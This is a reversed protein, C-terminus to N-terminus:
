QKASGWKARALCFLALAKYQKEVGCGHGAVCHLEM